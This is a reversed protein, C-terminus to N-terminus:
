RGHVAQDVVIALRALVEQGEGPTIVGRAVAAEVESQLGCLLAGARDAGPGPTARVPRPRAVRVVPRLFVPGPEGAPQAM